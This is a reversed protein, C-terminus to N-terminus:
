AAIDARSAKPVVLLVQRFDGGFVVVRGGFPVDELAPNIQKCVDKFSRDVAELVDRSIMSAEDWLILEASRILQATPSASTFSCMTHIDCKLPIKFLSHATKGGKLLLAATGSASVALTIGHNRRTADLLANSLYTKGTGGPGDLFIVKPETTHQNEVMNMVHGFVAQHDQNFTFRQEPKLSAGPDISPLTFGSYNNLSFGYDQLQEEIDYSACDYIQQDM